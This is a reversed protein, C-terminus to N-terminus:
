MMKTKKIKTKIGYEESTANLEDMIRQLGLNSSAVMAQDDAFRVAQVLQGGVKVVDAADELEDNIL